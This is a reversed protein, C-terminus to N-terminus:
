VVAAAIRHTTERRRKKDRAACILPHKQMIIREEKPPVGTWRHPKGTFLWFLPTQCAKEMGRWSRPPRSPALRILPYPRFPRATGGVRSECDRRRGGKTTRM